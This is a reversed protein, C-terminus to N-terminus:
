STFQSFSLVAATAASSAAAAFVAAIVTVLDQRCVVLFLVYFNREHEAINANAVLRTGAAAQTLSVDPVCSVVDGKHFPSDGLSRTVQAHM